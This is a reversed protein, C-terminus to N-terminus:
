PPGGGVRIGVRDGGRLREAMDAMRAAKDQGYVGQVCPFLCRLCAVAFLRLKRPSVDDRVANVMWTPNTACALWQEETVCEDTHGFLLSQLSRFLGMKREGAASRGANLRQRSGAPAWPGTPPRTVTPQLPKNLYAGLRPLPNLRPERLTLLDVTM